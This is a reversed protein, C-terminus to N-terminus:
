DQFTEDQFLLLFLVARSLHGHNQQNISFAGSISGHAMMAGSASDVCYLKERLMGTTGQTPNFWVPSVPHGEPDLISGRNPSVM